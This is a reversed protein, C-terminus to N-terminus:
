PVNEFRRTMGLSRVKGTSVAEEPIHWSDLKCSRRRVLQLGVLRGGSQSGTSLGRRRMEMELCACTAVFIPIAQSGCSHSCGHTHELCRVTGVSREAEIHTSAKTHSEVHAACRAELCACTEVLM